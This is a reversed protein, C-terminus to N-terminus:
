LRKWRLSIAKWKLRVFKINSIPFVPITVQETFTQSKKVPTLLAPWEQTCVLKLCFVFLWVFCIDALWKKNCSINLKLSVTSIFCLFNIDLLDILPWILESSSLPKRLNIPWLFKLRCHKMSEERQSWVEFPLSRYGVAVWGENLVTTTTRLQHSM